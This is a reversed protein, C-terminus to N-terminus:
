KQMRVLDKLLLQNGLKTPVLRVIQWRIVGRMRAARDLAGDLTTGGAESEMLIPAQDPFEAIIGYANPEDEAKYDAQDELRNDM